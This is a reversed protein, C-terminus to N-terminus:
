EILAAVEASIDEDILDCFEIIDRATLGQFCLALTNDNDPEFRVVEARVPLGDHGHDINLFLEVLVATGPRWQGNYGCIRCGGLSWDAARHTDDDCRVEILPVTTRRHRRRNEYAQEDSKNNRAPDMNM